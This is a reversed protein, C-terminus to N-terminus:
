YTTEAHNVAGTIGRAVKIVGPSLWTVVCDDKARTIPSPIPKTSETAARNSKPNVSVIRQSQARLKLNNAGAISAQSRAARRGHSNIWCPM